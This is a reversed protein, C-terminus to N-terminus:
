WTQKQCLASMELSLEFTRKQPYLPCLTSARFTQKQGLASMLWRFKSHHVVARATHYSELTPRLPACSAARTRLAPRRRPLMALRPASLTHTANARQVASSQVIGVVLSLVMFVLAGGMWLSASYDLLKSM